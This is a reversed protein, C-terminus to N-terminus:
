LSPLADFRGSHDNADGLCQELRELVGRVAPLRPQIAIAARYCKFARHLDNIHAYGHGMCALAEFHCPMQKVALRCHAIAPEWQGLLSYVLACQNAVEAFSPDIQQAKDFLSIAETYQEQAVAELAAEFPEHAQPLGDRFWITRLGHEAMQTVQEDDDHLARALICAIARDGILGLSIAALRRVDVHADSLLSAIEKPSWRYGVIRALQSVDGSALAPRVINLFAQADVLM